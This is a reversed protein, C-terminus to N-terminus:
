SESCGAPSRFHTQGNLWGKFLALKSPHSTDFATICVIAM